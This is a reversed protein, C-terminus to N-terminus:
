QSDPDGDTGRKEFFDVVRMASIKEAIALAIYLDVSVGDKEAFDEVAKRLSMPLTVIIRNGM